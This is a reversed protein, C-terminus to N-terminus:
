GKEKYQEYNNASNRISIYKMCGKEFKNTKQFRKEMVYNNNIKQRKKEAEYQRSRQKNRNTSKEFPVM